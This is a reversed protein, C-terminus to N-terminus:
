PKGAEGKLLALEAEIERTIEDDVLEPPLRPEPPAPTGSLEALRRQADSMRATLAHWTTTLHERTGEASALQQDLGKILDEVERKRMLSNRAEVDNGSEISTKAAALWNGIEIKHEAIEERIREENAKATRVSREAAALGETMERVVEELVESPNDCDKLLASLNCTVIDTLRSFYPM